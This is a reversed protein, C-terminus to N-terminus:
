YAAQDPRRAGLPPMTGLRLKRVVKEWTDADRGVDSPDLGELALGGTKLRQNHCTVCYQGLMASPDPPAAASTARPRTGVASFALAIAVLGTRGLTMTKRARRERRRRAITRSRM